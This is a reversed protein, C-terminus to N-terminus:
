PFVKRSISGNEDGWSKGVGVPGILLTDIGRSVHDQLQQLEAQRGVTEGRSFTVRPSSSRGFFRYSRNRQKSIWRVLKHRRDLRDVAQRKQETSVTIYIQSTQISSHGMLERIREVPVNRDALGTGFSHRLMHPYIPRIGAKRAYRKLAFWVTKRCLKAGTRLNCFVYPSHNPGRAELWTRLADQVQHNMPVIREKSGKGTFRLSPSDSSWHVQELQLRCAESVRLGCGAMTEILAQDRRNKPVALLAELEDPSLTKPLPQSALPSFM